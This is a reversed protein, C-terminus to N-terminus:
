GIEKLRKELRKKEELLRKKEELKESKELNEKALELQLKVNHVKESKWIFTEIHEVMVKDGSQVARSMFEKYDKLEYFTHKFPRYGSFGAYNDGEVVWQNGKM